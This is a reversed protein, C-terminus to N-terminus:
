NAGPASAPTIYMKREAFAFYIHLKRMLNMGVTVEPLLEAVDKETKTRDSTLQTYTADRKRVDELISVRPNNMEIDGFALTKFTHTYRKPQKPDETASKEAEPTDADGPTLKYLKQAVDMRLVTGSAGTDIIARVPQGDLTVPLVLHGDELVFPVVAAAAAKWYQVAGPCHDQSFFNLKDTGFDVDIDYPLMFNLSLVGDMYKFPSVPFYIDKGHLRGIDFQDIHARDAMGGGAVNIMKMYTAQIRLNLKEAVDRNIMTTEGGTDFIFQLDSGNVKMPVIDVNTPAPTMQVTNLLRLQGCDAARSGTAFSCLAVLALCATIQGRM